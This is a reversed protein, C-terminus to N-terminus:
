SLERGGACPMTLVLVLGSVKMSLTEINVASMLNSATDDYADLPLSLTSNVDQYDQLVRAYM